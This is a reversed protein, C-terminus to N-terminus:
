SSEGTGTKRSDITIDLDPAGEITDDPERSARPQIM